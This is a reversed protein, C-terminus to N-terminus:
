RRLSNMHRFGWVVLLGLGVGVTVAATMIKASRRRQWDPQRPFFLRGLLDFVIEILPTKM